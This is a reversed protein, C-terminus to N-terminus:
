QYLHKTNVKAQVTIANISKGSLVQCVLEYKYKLSYSKIIEM